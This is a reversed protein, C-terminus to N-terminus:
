CDTALSFSQLTAEDTDCFYRGQNQQPLVITRNYLPCSPGRYIKQGTEDIIGKLLCEKAAPTVTHGSPAKTVQCAQWLGQHTGQAYRAAALMREGHVMDSSVVPFAFGGELIRENIFLDEKDEGDEDKGQILWVYRTWVGDASRDLLPERELRIKQGIISENATVAEPGFCQIETAVQPTRIGVYRIRHGTDLVIEDGDIVQRVLGYEPPAADEAAPEVVSKNDEIDQDAIQSRSQWSFFGIVLVVGVLSVYGIIQNKKKTMMSM